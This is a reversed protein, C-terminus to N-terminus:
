PQFVHWASDLEGVKAFYLPKGKYAWQKSGDDRTIVTWDGFKKASDSAEAPVAKALCDGICTSRGALDGDFTYLTMGDVSYGDGNFDGTGGVSWTGVGAAKNGSPGVFMNGSRGVFEAGPLPALTYGNKVVFRGGDIQMPQVLSFDDNNVVVGTKRDIHTNWNWDVRNGDYYASFQTSNRLAAFQRKTAEGDRALQALERKTSERDRVLQALERQTSERDRVLQALQASSLKSEQAQAVLVNLLQVSAAKAEQLQAVQTV